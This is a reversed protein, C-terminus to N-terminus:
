EVCQALKECLQEDTRGRAALPALHKRGAVALNEAGARPVEGIVVRASALPTLVVEHHDPSGPGHRDPPAAFGCLRAAGILKCFCVASRSKGQIRSDRRLLKDPDIRTVHDESDGPSHTSTSV